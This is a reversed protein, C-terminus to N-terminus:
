TWTTNASSAWAPVAQMLDGYAYIKGDRVAVGQVAGLGLDTIAQSASSRMQRGSAM